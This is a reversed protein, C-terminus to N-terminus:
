RGFLESFYDGPNWEPPQDADAIARAIRYNLQAFRAAQDYDIPLSLQDSPQHYHNRLFDEFVAEGGNAYGLVVCVSPVGQQVFRYHDSRTFRGEEPIPDPSLKVDMEAAAKAVIPGLTSHEAGFAIIDTFPFLTMPMDLNVNAVMRGGDLPPYHAFYDSGVIGKEEGTLAVIYISRRPPREKTFARAVDLFTAVGLANDVAGNNVIDDDKDKRQKLGLHDLHATLIVAENKLVPDSGEIFGVVNPSTRQEFISAGKLRVKGPLAFGAVKGAAEDNLLEAYSKKAGAFLRVAGSASMAASPRPELVEGAITGDPGVWAMAPSLPAAILRRWPTRAENALTRLSIFGVAGHAAAAIRKQESSGVYARTESDFLAPAGNFVIVIKGSVDLGKYDDYGSKEDVAGYGAFVAPATVDFGPRDISRGILYDELDVLVTIEGSPLIVEMRSAEMDRRASHLKVNQFWSGNAGPKLGLKKFRAAVYHASDLFGQSGAERGERKDDALYLLDAHIREAASASSNAKALAGKAEKDLHLSDKAWAVSVLAAFALGLGLKKM